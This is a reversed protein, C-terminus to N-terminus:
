TSPRISEIRDIRFIREGERLHCHATIYGDAIDIPTITRSTLKKARPKRYEITVVPHTNLTDIIRQPVIPVLTQIDGGISLLDRATEPELVEIMKMLVNATMEVDAAARHADERVEVGLEGAITTLRNNDFSFGHRALRLTDLVPVMPTNHGAHHLEAKLFRNDFPSNHAVLVAGDLLPLIEDTVEAFCPKGEVDADSIGHVDTTEVPIPIGPNVLSDFTQVAGNPDIRRFAIEVVKAGKHPFLGTTETDYVVYPVGLASVRLEDVVHRYDQDTAFQFTRPQDHRNLKESM